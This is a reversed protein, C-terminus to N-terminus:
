YIVGLPQDTKLILKGDSILLSQTKYTPLKAMIM